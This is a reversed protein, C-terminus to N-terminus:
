PVLEEPKRQPWYILQIRRLEMAVKSVGHDVENIWENVAEPKLFLRESEPM